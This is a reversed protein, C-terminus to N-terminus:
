TETPETASRCILSYLGDATHMCQSLILLHSHALSLSGLGPYVGGEEGNGPNMHGTAWQTNQGGPRLSARMSGKPSTFSTRGAGRGGWGGSQAAKLHSVRTALRSVVQGQDRM